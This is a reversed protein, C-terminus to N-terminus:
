EPQQGKVIVRLTAITNGISKFEVYQGVKLDAISIMQKVESPANNIKFQQALKYRAGDIEVIQNAVDIATIEGEMIFPEGAYLPASVLLTVMLLSM